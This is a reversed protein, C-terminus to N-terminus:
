GLREASKIAEDRVEKLEYAVGKLPKMALGMTAIRIATKANGSQLALWAASRYLIGRWFTDPNCIMAAHLELKYAHYKINRAQRMLIDAEDMLAMAKDHLEKSRTM